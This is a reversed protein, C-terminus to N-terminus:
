PMVLFVFVLVLRTCAPMFIGLCKLCSFSLLSERIHVQLYLYPRFFVPWLICLSERLRYQRQPM